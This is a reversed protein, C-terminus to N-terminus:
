CSDNSREAVRCIRGESNYLEVEFGSFLFTVVHCIYMFLQIVFSEKMYWIFKYYILFRVKLKHEDIARQNKLHNNQLLPSTDV